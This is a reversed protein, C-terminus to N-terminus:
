DFILGLERARAVAAGRGRGQVGLKAYIQALHFKVTGTSIHLQMAIEKNSNGAALLALCAEEQPTLREVPPEAQPVGRSGPRVISGDGAVSANTRTAPEGPVSYPAIIEIRQGFGRGMSFSLTGGLRGVSAYIALVAREAEARSLADFAGDHELKVFLADPRFSIQLALHHMEGAGALSQVALRVAARLEYAFHPPLNLPRGELTLDLELDRENAAATVMSLVEAVLDPGEGSRGALEVQTSAKEVVAPGAKSYTTM